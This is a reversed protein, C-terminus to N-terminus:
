FNRSNCLLEGQILLSHLYSVFRTQYSQGWEESGNRKHIWSEVEKHGHLQFISVGKFFHSQKMDCWAVLCNM